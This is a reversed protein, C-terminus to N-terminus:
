LSKGPDSFQLIDRSEVLQVGRSKMKELAHQIDGRRLEIGRCADVIVFTHYGLEMSDLASYLVCYDLALGALYVDTVKQEKLFNDLGTHRLHANDFFTSYSDINPDIGKYFVRRVQRRDFGSNFDAGFSYQVCHVPWLIQDVGQLLVHEGFRKGPHNVAFSGHNPPHWDQTAVVLEFCPQLRNIVPLVLDGHFVPLAGGPMFDNQLDVAVLAKM